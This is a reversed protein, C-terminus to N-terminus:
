VSISETYDFKEFRERHSSWKFNHKSPRGMGLIIYERINEELEKSKTRVSKQRGHIIYSVSEKKM